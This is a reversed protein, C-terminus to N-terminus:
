RRAQFRSAGSLESLMVEFESFNLELGFNELILIVVIFLLFSCCLRIQDIYIYPTPVREVCLTPATRVM